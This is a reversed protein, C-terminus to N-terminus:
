LDGGARHLDFFHGEIGFSTLIPAAFAFANSRSAVVIHRVSTAGRSLLCLSTCLGPSEFFIGVGSVVAEVGGHDINPFGYPHDIIRDSSRLRAAVPDLAPASPRPLEAM